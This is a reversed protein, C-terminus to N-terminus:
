GDGFIRRLNERLRDFDGGSIEEKKLLELLAEQPKEWQLLDKLIEELRPSLPERGKEVVVEPSFGSKEVLLALREFRTRIKFNKKLGQHSLWDYILYRTRVLDERSSFSLLLSGGDELAIMDKLILSIGEYRSQDWKTTYAM